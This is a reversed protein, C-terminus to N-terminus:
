VHLSALYKKNDVFIGLGKNEWLSVRNNQGVAVIMTEFLDGLKGVGDRAIWRPPKRMLIVSDFNDWICKSWKVRMRLPCIMIGNGHLMFKNAWSEMETFPPNLWVRGTWPELLGNHEPLKFNRKAHHVTQRNSACPDLDFSGFLKVLERPTIWDDTITKSRHVKRTKIVVTETKYDFLTPKENHGFDFDNKGNAM